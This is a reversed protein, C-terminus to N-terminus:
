LDIAKSTPLNLNEKITCEQTLLSIHLFANELLAPAVISLPAIFVSGREITSGQCEYPTGKALSNFHLKGYRTEIKLDATRTGKALRNFHLKEYLHEGVKGM